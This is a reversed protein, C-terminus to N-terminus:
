IIKGDKLEYTKSAYKRVDQDHTILIITQKNTKNLNHLLEIIEQGTKSDLNGTPEDALILEPENILARAIAVRQQEGGSLLSPLHSARSGLGVKELMKEAKKIDNKGRIAIAAEVNQSATLTPILNFSQFIFGIRKQRIKALQAENTKMFDRGGVEIQGSTPKDLGGLLSLLTSKGSGSAGIIVVFDGQGVSLDIGDVANITKSGQKFSKVLNKIKILEM